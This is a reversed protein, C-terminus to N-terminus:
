RKWPPRDDEADEFYYFPKALQQLLQYSQVALLGFLIATWLGRPRPVWGPLWGLVTGSGRDIFCAVGYVAILCAVVFSIQLAIRQGNRRWLAGCVEQSVQGGDLPFVPLLNFIGWVLNVWVLAIYAYWLPDPKAGFAGRDPVWPSLQNSGWLVGCLVFGAFPGALSVVIRRWRGNVHSWPVALGGFAYLVIHSDVGFRRFALAHGLEHVLISVLVVAIWVLLFLVGYDELVSAGLLATFIWFFPHVRVPFRLVRFNVDYRTREPEVLV